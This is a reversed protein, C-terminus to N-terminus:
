DHILVGRRAMVRKFRSALLRIANTTRTLARLEGIESEVRLTTIPEATLQIGDAGIATVAVGAKGQALATWLDYGCCRVVPSHGRGVLACCALLWMGAEDSESMWQMWTERAGASAFVTYGDRVGEWCVGAGLVLCTRVAATEYKMYLGRQFGMLCERENPTFLCMARSTQGGYSASSADIQGVSVSKENMWSGITILAGLCDTTSPLSACNARVDQDALVDDSHVYPGNAMVTSCLYPRTERFRKLARVVGEVIFAPMDVWVKSVTERLILRSRTGEVYDDLDSGRECAGLRFDAPAQAALPRRPYDPDHDAASWTASMMVGFVPDALDVYLGRERCPVERAKKKHWERAYEISAYLNNLRSEMGRILTQTTVVGDANAYAPVSPCADQMSSTDGLESRLLADEPIAAPPDSEFFACM